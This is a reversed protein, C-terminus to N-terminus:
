YRAQAHLGFTRWPRQLAALTEQDRGSITTSGRSRAHNPSQGIADFDIRSSRSLKMPRAPSRGFRRDPEVRCSSSRAREGWGAAPAGAHVTLAVIKQSLDPEAGALPAFDRKVM